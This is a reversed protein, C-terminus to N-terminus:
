NLIGTYYNICDADFLYVQHASNLISKPEKTMSFFFFSVQNIPSMFQIRNAFDNCRDHGSLQNAMANM